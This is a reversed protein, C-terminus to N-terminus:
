LKWGLGLRLIHQNGIDVDLSQNKQQQETLNPSEFIFTDLAANVNFLILNLDIMLRSSLWYEAHGVGAFEMGRISTTTPVSTTTTPTTEAHYYYLRFSGGLRFHLKDMFQPLYWAAEYRLGLELDKKKADEDELNHWRVRPEIEHSFAKDTKRISIAPTLGNFAVPRPEFDILRPKYESNFILFNGYLKLTIASQQGHMSPLGVVFFFAVVLLNKM